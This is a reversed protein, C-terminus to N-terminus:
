KELHIHLCVFREHDEAMRLHIRQWRFAAYKSFKKRSYQKRKKYTHITQTRKYRLFKEGM